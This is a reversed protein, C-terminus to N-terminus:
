GRLPAFGNKTKPLDGKTTVELLKKAIITGQDPALKGLIIIQVAIATLM